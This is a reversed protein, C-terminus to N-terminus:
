GEAEKRADPTLRVRSVRSKRSPTAARDMRDVMDLTEMVKQRTPTEWPRAGTKTSHPGEPQHDPRVVM